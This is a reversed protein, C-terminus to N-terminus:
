SAADLLARIRHAHNITTKYSVLNWKTILRQNAFAVRELNWRYDFFERDVSLEPQRYFRAVAEDIVAIRLARRFCALSLDIDTRCYMKEDLPGLTEACERRMGYCHRELHSVLRSKGIRDANPKCRRKLTSHVGDPLEEIRSVPPDFHMAASDGEYVIPVAVDCFGQKISAVCATLSGPSLVVDNELCFVYKANAASVFRNWARNTNAFRGTAQIRLSIRAETCYSQIAGLTTKPYGSDLVVIEDLETVQGVLSQVARVAPSFKDRAILGVSINYKM